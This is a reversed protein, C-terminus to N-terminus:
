KNIFYSGSKNILIDDVVIDSLKEGSESVANLHYLGAEGTVTNSMGINSDSAM